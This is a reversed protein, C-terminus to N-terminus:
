IDARKFISADVDSTSAFAADLVAAEHQNDCRTILPSVRWSSLLMLRVDQSIDCLSANSSSAYASISVHLKALWSCLGDQLLTGTMVSLKSKALKKRFGFFSSKTTPPQCRRDRHSHLGSECASRYRSAGTSHPLWGAM